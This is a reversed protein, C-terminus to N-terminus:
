SKSIMKLKDNDIINGVLVTLQESTLYELFLKYIDRNCDIVFCRWLHEADKGFLYRFTNITCYNGFEKLKKINAYFSRCDDMLNGHEIIDEYNM